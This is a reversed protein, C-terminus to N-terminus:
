FEPTTEGGNPTLLATLLESSMSFSITRVSGDAFLFNCVGPHGSGWNERIALYDGRADRIMKTGKRATSDSGGLFYPEDWYWSGTAAYQLDVAKEGALITNSMGDTIDAM